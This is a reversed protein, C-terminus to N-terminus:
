WKEKQPSELAERVSQPSLKIEEEAAAALYTEIFRLPPVGRRERNSHRPEVAAQVEEELVADGVLPGGHVPIVPSDDDPGWNDDEGENDDDERNEDDSSDEVLVPILPEQGVQQTQQSGEQTVDDVLDPFRIEDVEDVDGGGEGDDKKWWGPVVSEDVDPVGVNFM